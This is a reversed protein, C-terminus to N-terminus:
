RCKGELELVLDKHKFLHANPNKLLFLAAREALDNDLTLEVDKIEGLFLYFYQLTDIVVTNVNASQTESSPLSGYIM